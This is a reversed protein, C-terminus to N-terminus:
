PVSKQNRNLDNKGKDNLMDTFIIFYGTLM